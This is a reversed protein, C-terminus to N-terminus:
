FSFLFLFFFGIRKCTIFSKYIINFHKLFLTKSKLGPRPLTSISSLFSCLQIKVPGSPAILSYYMNFCQFPYSGHSGGTWCRSGASRVTSERKKVKKSKGGVKRTPGVESDGMVWCKRRKNPNKEMKPRKNGGVLGEKRGRTVSGGVLGRGTLVTGLTRANQLECVTFM